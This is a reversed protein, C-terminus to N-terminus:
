TGAGGPEFWQVEHLVEVCAFLQEECEAQVLARKGECDSERDTVFVPWVPLKCLLLLEPQHTCTWCQLSKLITSWAAM